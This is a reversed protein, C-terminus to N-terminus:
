STISCWVSRTFIVSRPPRKAACCNPRCTSYHAWSYKGSGSEHSSGFDMLLIRGGAERMANSPKIDRHLLGAGHVASVARCLDIGILVAEHANFPGHATVLAQLTSGRIYDSWFGLRGEHRDVGYVQVVNPHRVRALARAERLTTEYAEDENTGRLKLIKLAVERQLQPDWARYVEGYSGEGIRARLEFPGWATLAPGSPGKPRAALTQTPTDM